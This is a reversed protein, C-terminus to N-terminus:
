KNLLARVEILEKELYNYLKIAEQVSTRNQPTKNNKINVYSEYANVGGSVNNVREIFEMKSYVRKKILNKIIKLTRIRLVLTYLVPDPILKNGGIKELVKKILKLKEETSELYRGVNKIDARIQLSDLYASNILPKAEKLMPGIPLLDSELKQNLLPTSIILISYRGKIITEKDISKTIVILDIDSEEDEEGRAYSGSLYVGVIEELPINQALFSLTESLIIDPSKKALEVRVQKNLWSKPLIVASSNGAKVARKVYTEM